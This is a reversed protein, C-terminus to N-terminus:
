LRVHGTAVAWRVLETRNSVHALRFMRTLLQEVRRSSLYMRAAIEKNTQGECVYELIKQEDPALFVADRAQVFGPGGGGGQTLLLDKIEQLDRQLESLTQDDLSNSVASQAITRDGFLLQQKEMLSDCITVLEEPDFPKPLYVDAGANYGTIRDMTQGKATLLIVPLQVWQPTSRVQQLFEIGDMGPMRIDSIIVDPLQQPPRQPNPSTTNTCQQLYDLASPADALTHVSFGANELFRSVAIRIDEEDDVLLILSESRKEKLRQQQQEQKSGQDDDDLIVEQFRDGDSSEDDRLIVRAFQRTSPKIPTTPRIRFLVPIRSSSFGICPSCWNGAFILVQLLPLIIRRLLFSRM